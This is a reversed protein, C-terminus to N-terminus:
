SRRSETGEAKDAADGDVREPCPPGDPGSVVAGRVAAKPRLDSPGGKPNGRSELAKDPM